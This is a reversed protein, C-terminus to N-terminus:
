TGDFGNVFITDNAPPPTFDGALQVQMSNNSGAVGGNIENGHGGCDTPAVTPITFGAASLDLGAASGTGALDVPIPQFICTGVGIPIVGGVLASLVQLKLSAQTLAAVGDSAVQGTSTNTQSLQYTVTVDAGLSDSHFTTTAVPFIFQGSSLAGTAGNYGSDGFTGGAPLVGPNGNVSITGTVAFNSAHVAPLAAIQLAMALAINWKTSAAM